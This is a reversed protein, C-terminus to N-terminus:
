SQKSYIEFGVAKPLKEILDKTIIDPKIVKRLKTDIWAGDVTITACISGDEKYFHHRISFKTLDDRVRLLGADIWIKEGVLIERTFVCEERFLVPGFHNAKYVAMNLGVSALMETRAQAGLEYYVSHNLHFNIDFDSWRFQIEKKYEM